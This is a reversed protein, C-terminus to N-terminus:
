AMCCVREYEDDDGDGDGIGMGDAEAACVGGGFGFRVGFRFMRGLVFGIARGLDVPPSDPNWGAMM